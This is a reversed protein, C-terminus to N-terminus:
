FVTLSRIRPIVLGATLALYGLKRATMFQFRFQSFSYVKEVTLKKKGKPSVFSAPSLCGQPVATVLGLPVAIVLSPLYLALPRLLVHPVPHLQGRPRLYHQPLHGPDPVAHCGLVWLARADVPSDAGDM